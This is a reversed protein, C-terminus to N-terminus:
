YVTGDLHRSVNRKFSQLDYVSPFVSLPLCNWLQGTKYMFSQSYRNVRTNSLQVSFPHSNSAQRTNRARRLPPPISASLESSCHGHFYRYFLSLSAICNWPLCSATRFDMGM